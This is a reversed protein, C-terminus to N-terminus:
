FISTAFERIEPVAVIEVLPTETVPTPVLNVVSNFTPSVISILLSDLTTAVIVSGTVM